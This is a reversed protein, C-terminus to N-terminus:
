RPLPPTRELLPAKQKDSDERM